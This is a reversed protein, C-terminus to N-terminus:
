SWCPQCLIRCADSQLIDTEDAFPEQISCLNALEKWESIRLSDVQIGPSGELLSQSGFMLCIFMILKDPVCQTM